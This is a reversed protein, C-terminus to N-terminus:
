VHIANWTKQWQIEQHHRSVALPLALGFVLGDDRWILRRDELEALAAAHDDATEAAGDESLSTLRNLRVPVPDIARYLASAAPSLMYEEEADFRSDIIHLRDDIGTEYTLQVTRQRHLAKWHEIQVVLQSYITSMEETYAFGREFYYAYKDYDFGTESLFQRSFLLDYCHHHPQLALGFREPAVQLPAFRTIVTQTRAVPPSLHYIRPILEMMEYYEEPGDGPLGYLINYDVIIDSIACHKLLAVNDIARVGKDMRKLVASSFSEIGPQIEGFGAEALLSIREPTQNAKIECHLRFKPRHSALLPLLETYYNKPLIYDSFRFTMDGHRERLTQLMAFTNAAPKSRYQLTEEDIGCFTCHKTQGWWCGRSSEVPLVKALIQVSRDKSLDEVDRLWDRYDPVLSDALPFPGASRIRGNTQRGAARDPRLTEDALEVIVAEGDGLVITDIWPFADGIMGATEGHLGYGGLVIRVGPDREKLIKAVALSALTQDFMCTFGVLRPTAELIRTACEEIFEPILDDRVHLVLEYVDRMTTYRSHPYQRTTEFREAFALLAAQQDADFRPDLARSFVFENVGWTGAILEYTEITLWHLLRPAMHFVRSTHGAAALHTHLLSLGLSPEAVPAWPMSVLAIDTHQDAM